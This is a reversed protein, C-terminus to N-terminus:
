SRALPLVIIIAAAKFETAEALTSGIISATVTHTNHKADM